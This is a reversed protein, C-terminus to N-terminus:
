LFFEKLTSSLDTIIYYWDTTPDRTITLNTQNLQLRLIGAIGALAQAVVSGEEMEEVSEYSELQSSLMLNTQFIVMDPNDTWETEIEIYESM